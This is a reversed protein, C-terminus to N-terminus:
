KLYALGTFPPFNMASSDSNISYITQLAELRHTGYSKLLDCARADEHGLSQFYSDRPKYFVYQKIRKTM